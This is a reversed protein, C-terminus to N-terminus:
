KKQLLRWLMILISNIKKMFPSLWQDVEDTKMKYNALSIIKSTNIHVHKFFKNNIKGIFEYNGNTKLNISSNIEFKDKKFRLKGGIFNENINIQEIKKKPM